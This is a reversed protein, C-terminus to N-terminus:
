LPDVPLGRLLANLAEALAADHEPGAKRRFLRIPSAGRAPQWRTVGADTVTVNVPELSLPQVAAGPPVSGAPVFRWGEGTRALVRGAAIALSATSWMNRSGQWVMAAAYGRSSEWLARLLDARSSGTFSYVFWSMLPQPIGAFLKEHTARWYTNRDDANMAVSKNPGPAGCPYWDIPLGSRFLGVYSHVDIVVNYEAADAGSSGANVVVSKVKRKLLEPDRNFAATVIRASGLVTVVAPAPSERLSQLLLEVAAQERRPRDTAADGPSRLPEAPGAAVPAYRGTLYCFQAVPLLGPEQGAALGRVARDLLVARIDFEELAFVTALDLHDDPDAPPHFLDTTHILFIRDKEAAPAMSLLAALAAAIRVTTM